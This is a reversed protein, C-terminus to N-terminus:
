IEQELYYQTPNKISEEIFLNIEKPDHQGDSDITIAYKFKKNIAFKFANRLSQGKGINNLHKIVIIKDKLNHIINSTEDTSGDNVVIINQCIEFTDNIISELTDSNNFTPIIVCFEKSM